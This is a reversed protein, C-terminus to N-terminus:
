NNVEHLSDPRIVPRYMHEKGVKAKMNSVIIKLSQLPLTDYVSELEDYFKDKIGKNKEEMPAYCNIIIGDFIKGAAHIYCIRDSLASFAKVNPLVKDRVMFNVGNEHKKNTTSNYFLTTNVKKLNRSNPWRIDQIALIDIKYDNYADLVYQFVGPKNLTRINRTKIRLGNEL